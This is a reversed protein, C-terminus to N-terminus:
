PRGRAALFAEVAVRFAEPSEFFPAHGCHSLLTLQAGLGTATEAITSATVPDEGGGVVLVPIGQLSGLRSRLDYGGLSDWVARAVDDRVEVPTLDWARDPDALVPAVRAVFEARARTRPDRADAAAQRAREEVARAEARGRAIEVDRSIRETSATHMPPPSVLVLRGVSERHDLAYLVALLAGWSFGLVDVTGADFHRRVADLDAVHCRWDGPAPGRALPSRAGGRQDYYVVRRAESALVDLHPRLGDHSEGPGGHVVVLAGGEEPGVVVGGLTAGPVSLSFTSTAL